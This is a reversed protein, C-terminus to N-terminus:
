KGFLDKAKRVLEEQSVVNKEVLLAVLAKQLNMAQAPDELLDKISKKEPVAHSEVIENDGHEEEYYFQIIAKRIADKSALVPEVKCNTLFQIEEIAEYDNINSMALRIQGEKRFVPLVNHKEIVDRPISEVLKQPIVLNSIDVISIGEMKGIIATSRFLM